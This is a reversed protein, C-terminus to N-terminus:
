VREPLGLCECKIRFARVRTHNVKGSKANRGSRLSDMSNFRSADSRPEKM